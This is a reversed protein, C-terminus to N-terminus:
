YHWQLDVVPNPAKDGEGFLPTANLFKNIEDELNDAVLSAYQEVACAEHPDEQAQEATVKAIVGMAKNMARNFEGVTLLDTSKRKPFFNMM